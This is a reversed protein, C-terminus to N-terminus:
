HRGWPGESNGWPRPPDNQSSGAPNRVDSWPGWPGQVHGAPADLTPDQQEARDYPLPLPGPDHGGAYKVLAEVRCGGFSPDCVPRCLGRASQRRMIGDGGLDRWSARRPKRDQAAGLDHRRPKQDTRGIRCRRATRAVAVAGAQGIAVAALGAAILAIAVFSSSSRAAARARATATRPHPPRRPGRHLPRRIALNFNFFSRFFLEAFFGVVGAIIVAIVMMQVDGNRIHTLEHGLM